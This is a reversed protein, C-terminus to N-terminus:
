LTTPLRGRKWGCYARAAFYSVETVPAGPRREDGWSALYRGDALTRPARGPQWAPNSELFEAFAARSVPRVDLRFSAVPFSSQGVDLGFLPAFRGAPVTVPGAAFATASVMVMLRLARM